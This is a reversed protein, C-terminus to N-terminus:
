VVSKRDIDKDNKLKESAYKVIIGKNKVADLVVDKDNRMEKSAYYLIQGDIKLGARLLDKDKLLNDKAYCYTWGVKSVSNYVVEKDEKIKDAHNEWNDGFIDMPKPHNLSLHLDAIAYIAM